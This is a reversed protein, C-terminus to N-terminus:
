DSENEAVSISEADRSPQFNRRGFVSEVHRLQESGTIEVATKKERSTSIRLTKGADERITIVVTSKENSNKAFTISVNVNAISDATRRDDTQRDDTQQRHRQHM